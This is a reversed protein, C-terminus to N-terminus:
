VFACAREKQSEKERKRENKGGAGEEDGREREHIYM